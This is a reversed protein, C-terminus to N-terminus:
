GAEDVKRIRLIGAFVFAVGALVLAGVSACVCVCVCVCHMYVCVVYQACVNLDVVDGKVDLLACRQFIM